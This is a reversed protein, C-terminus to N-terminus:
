LGMGLLWGEPLEFGPRVGQLHLHEGSGTDHYIAYLGLVKADIVMQNSAGSPVECGWSIDCAIPELPSILHRSDSKGGATQNSLHGRHSSTIEGGEHVQMFRAVRARFEAPSMYDPRHYHDATQETSTTPIPSTSASSTM